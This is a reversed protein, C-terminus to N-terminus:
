FFFFFFIKVYILDKEFRKRLNELIAEETLEDLKIMDSLGVDQSFPLSPTSSM